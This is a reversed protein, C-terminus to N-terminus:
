GLPLCCMSLTSQMHMWRWSVVLCRSLQGTALLHEAGPELSLTNIKKEHLSIEQVHGCLFTPGQHLSKQYGCTSHLM